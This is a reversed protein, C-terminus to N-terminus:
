RPVIVDRNRQHKRARRHPGNLKELEEAPRRIRRPSIMKRRKLSQGTDITLESGRNPIREKLFENLLMANVQDYRV